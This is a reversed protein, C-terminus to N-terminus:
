RDNGILVNRLSQKGQGKPTITCLSLTRGLKFFNTKSIKGSIIKFSDATDTDFLLYNVYIIGNEFLEM